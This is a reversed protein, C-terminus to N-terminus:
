RKMSYFGLNSRVSFPSKLILYFNVLVANSINNIKMGKRALQKTLCANITYRIKNNKNPTAQTAPPRFVKNRTKAAINGSQINVWNKCQTSEHDYFHSRHKIM